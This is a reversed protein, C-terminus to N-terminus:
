VVQYMMPYHCIRFKRPNKLQYISFCLKYILSFIVTLVAISAATSIIIKRTSSDNQICSILINYNKLFVVVSAQFQINNKELHQKLKVKLVDKTGSVPLGYKKCAAVLQAKSLCDLSTRTKDSMNSLFSSLDFKRVITELDDGATKLLSFLGHIKTNHHQWLIFSPLIMQCVLTNALYYYATWVYTTLQYKTVYQGVQFHWWKCDFSTWKTSSKGSDDQVEYFTFDIGANILTM